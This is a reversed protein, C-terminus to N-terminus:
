YWRMQWTPNPFGELVSRSPNQGELVSRSPNQGELVSRSPNQGELIIRSGGSQDEQLIVKVGESHILLPNGGGSSNPLRKMGELSM